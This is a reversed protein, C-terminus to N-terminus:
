ARRGRNRKRTRTRRKGGFLIKAAKELVGLEGKQSIMYEYFKPHRIVVYFNPGGYPESITMSDEWCAPPTGGAIMAWEANFIRSGDSGRVYTRIDRCRCLIPVGDVSEPPTFVKQGFTNITYQKPYPGWVEGPLKPLSYLARLPAPLHSLTTNGTMLADKMSPLKIKQVSADSVIPDTAWRMGTTIDTVWHGVVAPQAEKEKYGPMSHASGM